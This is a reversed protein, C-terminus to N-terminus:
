EKEYLTRHRSVYLAQVFADAFDDKKKEGRFMEVWREEQSILEKTAVSVMMKKNLAYDISKSKKGLKHVAVLDPYTARCYRKVQGPNVSLARGVFQSHLVAEMIRMSAAMQQEVAVLDAEEAIGANDTKFSHVFKVLRPILLTKGDKEPLSLRQWELIKQSEVDFYCFATNRTGIDISLIRRIGSGGSRLM